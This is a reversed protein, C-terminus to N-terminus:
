AWDLVDDLPRRATAGAPQDSAPHGVRLLLQLAGLLGLEQGLRARIGPVELAQTLPSTALGDRTATLLVRGLARGATLWDEPGDGRTGLVVVLPHEPAPPQAAATTVPSGPRFDRLRVSSARVHPDGEAVAQETLGEGGDRALWRALEARYAPDAALTEEARALAVVIATVADPRTVAQLWAGCREAAQALGATAEPAVPRAAFPRRDTRRLGIAAALRAEEQDAPVRGELVLDALHDAHGGPLLRVACGVGNGRAYTEALAVAAGISLHLERGQPDAVPLQRDRDAWVQVSGDTVVFRWPQTNHVSPARTAAGVMARVFDHDM